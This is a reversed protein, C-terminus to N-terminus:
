WYGISSLDDDNACSVGGDLLRQVQEESQGRQTVGVGSVKVGADKLGDALECVQEMNLSCRPIYLHGYDRLPQLKRATKVAWQIHSEDSLHSLLLSTCESITINHSVTTTRTVDPLHQLHETMAGAKIQVVLKNLGPYRQTIHALGPDQAKGTTPDVLIGLYLENVHKPLAEITNTATWLKGVECGSIDPAACHLERWSNNFHCESIYECFSLFPLHNQYKDIVVKDIHIKTNQKISFNLLDCHIDDINSMKIICEKSRLVDILTPLKALMETGSINMEVSDINVYQILTSLYEVDADKIPDLMVQLEIHPAILKGFYDATSPNLDFNSYLDYWQSYNTSDIEALLNIIETGHEKVLNADKMALIGGLLQLVNQYKQVKFQRHNNYLKLLIGKISEDGNSLKSAICKAAYFDMMGKHPLELSEDLDALWELKTLLYAGKLESFPLKILKCVERLKKIGQEDLYMRDHRLSVLSEYFLEEEFLNIMDRLEGFDINPTHNQVIRNELKKYNIELITKYLGAASKVSKAREIDEGWIWSLIVLNIPLRYLDKHHASCGKFFILLEDTSQTSKGASVLENHYKALFEERKSEHIGLIQLHEINLIDGRNMYLQKVSEPRSTVIVRIHDYKEKLDRIELFLKHSNQNQEDYGDCYFLVTFSPDAICTMIDESDIHVKVNPILEEILQAVSCIRQNRFMMPFFFDYDETNMVHGGDAWDDIGFKFNTTKGGGTESNILLISDSSAMKIIDTCKIPVNTKHRNSQKVLIHTYLLKIDHLSDSGSLFDLIKIKGYKKCKIKYPKIEARLYKHSQYSKIELKGLPQALISSIKVDINKKLISIASSASPFRGILTSLIDHILFKIDEIEKEMEISNIGICCHFAENRKNALKQCKYELERKDKWKRNNDPEYCESLVRLCRILLSIDYCEGSAPTSEIVKIMTSDFYARFESETKHLDEILHDKINKSDSFHKYSQYVNLLTLQGVTKLTHIVKFQNLDQDSIPATFAIASGVSSTAASSIMMMIPLTLILTSLQITNGPSMAFKSEIETQPVNPNVCSTAIRGNFYKRVEPISNFKNVITRQPFLHFDLESTIPTVQENYYTSVFNILIFGFLIKITPWHFNCRCKFKKRHYHRQLVM